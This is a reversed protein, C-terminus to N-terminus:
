IEAVHKEVVKKYLAQYRKNKFVQTPYVVALHGQFIRVDVRMDDLRNLVSRPNQSIDLLEGNIAMMLDMAVDSIDPREGVIDHGLWGAAGFGGTM